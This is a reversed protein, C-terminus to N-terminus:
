ELSIRYGAEKQAKEEWPQLQPVTNKIDYTGPGVEIDADVTALGRRLAKAMKPGRNGVGQTMEYKGPGPFADTKSPMFRRQTGILHAPGDQGVM